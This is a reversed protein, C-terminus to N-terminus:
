KIELRKVLQMIEDVTFSDSKKNGRLYSCQLMPHKSKPDGFIRCIEPRNDYILCRNESNLFGCRGAPTVCISVDPPLFFAKEIKTDKNLYVSFQAILKDPIPVIGCCEAHCVSVDCKKLCKCM